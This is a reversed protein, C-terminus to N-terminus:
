MDKYDIAIVEEYYGEQELIEEELHHYESTLSSEEKRSSLVSRAELPITKAEISRGM